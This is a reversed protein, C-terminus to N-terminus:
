TQIWCDANRNSMKGKCDTLSGTENNLKNNNPSSQISYTVCPLICIISTWPGKDPLIDLGPCTYQDNDYATPQVHDKFINMFLIKNSRPGFYLKNCNIWRCAVDCKNGPKVQRCALIKSLIVMQLTGLTSLLHTTCKCQGFDPETSESNLGLAGGSCLQKNM